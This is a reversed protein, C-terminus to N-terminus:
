RQCRRFKFTLYLYKKLVADDEADGDDNYVERILSFCHELMNEKKEKFCNRRAVFM